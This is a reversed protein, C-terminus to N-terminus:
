RGRMVALCKSFVPGANLRSKEMECSFFGFCVTLSKEWTVSTLLWVLFLLQTVIVTVSNNPTDKIDACPSFFFGFVLFGFVM